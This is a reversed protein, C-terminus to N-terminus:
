LHAGLWFVAEKRSKAHCVLWQWLRIMDDWTLFINQGIKKLQEWAGAFGRFVWGWSYSCRGCGQKSMYKALYNALKSRQMLGKQRVPLIDVMPAGHIRKWLHSLLAQSIYSGRFIIHEHRLGSVTLEPARIYDIMLNRRLLRMRLKRFSRQFDGPSDPSSTLTVLRLAGGKELGSSVRHYMRRRRKEALQRASVNEYDLSSSPLSAKAEQSRM